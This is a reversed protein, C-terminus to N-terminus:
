LGGRAAKAERKLRKMEPTPKFLKKSRKRMTKEQVSRKSVTHNYPNPQNTTTNYIATAPVPGFQVTANGERFTSTPPGVTKYGNWIGETGVAIDLGCIAREFMELAVLPQYFPVEHGSEYIRVFAFNGNQKVQGHVIDDSTSINEYGASVFSPGGTEESVVQGGFWNCNYDADGAYEVVYVGQTLLKKVDEITGVERDDDGTTIFATGVTSSSESYNVFAGVAQQVKPTNLYDVFFTYPFPDNYPERIDYEDRVAIIDLQNEVEEYCFLDSASCIDNLGSTYCDVTQDYCNGTGYMANYIQAKTSDNYVDFDYTNGPYISFNYYAAYQILPDYWGNGILLTSLKIYHAGPLKGAQILANQEELYENFVPGYHGGYSETAFNFEHRSYQPFAGFFGQLTKWMSPAAALTSNATNSANQTSYTGCALNSAYDPCTANPLEVINSPSASSRYASVPKSYSFGVQAPHDIFLMNSVNNWAYPNYVVSGNGDIGCPGLEQFLGIMSSSGPGGNIWVSLPATTPDQNRAEFFWWFISQDEAVDVYGSYSEVGPTLECIGDPVQKYRVDLDYFGKTAILDTPAPVFQASASSLIGALALLRSTAPKM